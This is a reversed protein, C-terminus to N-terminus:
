LKYKLNFILKLTIYYVHQKLQNVDLICCFAKSKTLPKKTYLVHKYHYSKPAIPM